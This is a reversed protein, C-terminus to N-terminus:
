KTEVRRGLQVLLAGASAIVLAVVDLVSLREGLFIVALVAIQIMMTNNIVSSEVSSLTRLTHNWLTFAFATNIGALWLVILIQKVGLIPMQETLLGAVLLIVSGFGMSIITVVRPSLHEKRNIARGSIAAGANALMGIVPILLLWTWGVDQQLHPIFYLASGLLCVGIGIVQKLSASERLLILSLLAVVIPTFNLILTILVAPFHALSLFQAGQTAAYMIFGLGLLEWWQRGSLEKIKSSDQKLVFPLLFLFGLFYRLGAFTLPPLGQGQLGVKIFVWSSSWLFTVFLAQVIANKHFSIKNRGAM